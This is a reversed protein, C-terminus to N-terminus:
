RPAIQQERKLLVFLVPVVFLVLLVAALLGGVVARALPINAGGAIAMPTLGLIAALGVMLIPRLRLTAAEIIAQRATKHIGTERAEELIRNAFDVMIVSFSVVIGVMMIIGMASQISLYTGTLYLMLAVGILGLPVAFMVIFPDLFSRFQVVMVLYVLLIALAFGFGLSQFSDRMSKVEGRMQINYGEPVESRDDRIKGIYKDIEGAVSGVDRGRVNVFIDTVRTINLHNTESPATSRSFNAVTRLPIATPQKPGTIPIDLVTDISKIDQERYQAGIFYHNGNKEDIWFSPAFNTSSNLATVINKVIGDQTL